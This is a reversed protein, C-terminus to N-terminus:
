EIKLYKYCENCLWLLRDETAYCDTTTDKDIQKWCNTCHMHWVKSYDCNTQKLLEDAKEEPSIFKFWLSKNNLFRVKLENAYKKPNIKFFKEKCIDVDVIDM